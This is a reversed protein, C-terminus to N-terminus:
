HLQTIFWASYCTCVKLLEYFLPKRLFCLSFFFKFSVRFFVSDAGRQPGWQKSLFSLYTLPVTVPVANVTQNFVGYTCDVSFRFRSSLSCAPDGHMELGQLVM